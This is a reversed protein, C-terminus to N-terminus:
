IAMPKGCLAAVFLGMACWWWRREPREASVQPFARLYACLSGLAFLACVTTKREAMWAVSEVQMPHWAFVMGTVLVIAAQEGWRLNPIRATVLWALGLVLGTNLAHLVV